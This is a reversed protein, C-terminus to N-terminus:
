HYTRRNRMLTLVLLTANKPKTIFIFIKRLAWIRDSINSIKLQTICLKLYILKSFNIYILKEAVGTQMLKTVEVLDIRAQANRTLQTDGGVVYTYIVEQEFHTQSPELNLSALFLQDEAMRFKTFRQNRLLESKFAMRWFGPNVFISNLDFINSERFIIEQKVFDLTQFRGVAVNKDVAAANIVMKLYKSPRPLDDSDWFTIWEGLALDIGHNRALGPSNFKGEVLTVNRSSAGNVIENLEIGTISDQKDHVIIVQINENIAQNLWSTLNGLRGSMRAVPVIATLKYEIM